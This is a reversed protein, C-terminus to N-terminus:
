NDDKFGEFNRRLFQFLDEKKEKDLMLFHMAQIYLIVKCFRSEFQKFFEMRFKITLDDKNILTKFRGHVIDSLEQYLKKLGMAIKDKESEIKEIEPYFAKIYKTKFFNYENILTSVYKDSKADESKYLFFEIEHHYYFFFLCSIELLSRLTVFASRYYGCMASHISGLADSILENWLEKAPMNNSPTMEILNNLSELLSAVDVKALTEEAIDNGNKIFTNKYLEKNYSM